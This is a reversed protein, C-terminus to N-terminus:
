RYHREAIPVNRQLEELGAGTVGAEFEGRAELMGRKVLSQVSGAHVSTRWPNDLVAVSGPSWLYLAYRAVLSLVRLSSSTLPRPM